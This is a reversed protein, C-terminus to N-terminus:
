TRTYHDRTQQELCLKRGVGSISDREPSSEVSAMEPNMGDLM